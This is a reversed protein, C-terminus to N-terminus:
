RKKSLGEFTPTIRYTSPGGKLIPAKKQKKLVNPNNTPTENPQYNSYIVDENELVDFMNNNTWPKHSPKCTTSAWEGWDEFENKSNSEWPQHAPQLEDVNHVEMDWQSSGLLWEMLINLGQVNSPLSATSAEM